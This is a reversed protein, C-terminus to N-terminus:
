TLGGMALGVAVTYAPADFPPVAVSKALPATAFPSFLAIEVPILEAITPIIGPLAASGGSLLIRKVVAGQHMGTFYQLAKQIETVFPRFIPLISQMVKGELQAGDIGYTRKYEEAQNPDLGLGREVARSLVMGGNPYIYVFSLEKEHIILMDTSSAGMHVILTTPLNPDQIALRYLALMQTELSAVDLGADYFLQTFDTVTKKSTGLLLVRM